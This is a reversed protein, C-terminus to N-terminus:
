MWIAQNMEELCAQQHLRLGDLSKGDKGCRIGGPLNEPAFTSRRSSLAQKSLEQTM